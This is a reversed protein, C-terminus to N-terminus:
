GRTVDVLVRGRVAGGAVDRLLTPVEHLTIEHAVITELVQSDLADDLRHWIATREDLAMEVADIGILANARVIFPYVSTEFSNGGTLGSAAVAGRYHLTRLISALTSGGVCDIAGAWRESGLTRDPKDDIEDRGIVAHAGLTSLYAHEAAKGSSAVVQYGARALLAVATSGVGGTAGTVLVPGMSPTLGHHELRQISAMATFGATGLIMAARTTLRGLPVVWPSPVKALPAFGGHHSVGIGYCHAVVTTGPALAPDASEIIRGALDVGGILPSRRAVRNGAQTVMADKFNLTSYEVAIVTDGELLEEDVECVEVRPRPEEQTIVVAKM